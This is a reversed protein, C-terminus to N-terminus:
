LLTKLLSLISLEGINFIEYSLIGLDYSSSPSCCRCCSHSVVLLSPIVLANIGIFDVSSLEFNVEFGVEYSTLPCPGGGPPKGTLFKFVGVKKM